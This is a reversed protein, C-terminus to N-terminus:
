PSWWVPSCAYICPLSLPMQRRPVSVGPRWDLARPRSSSGPRLSEAHAPIQPESVEVVVALVSTSIPCTTWWPGFSLLLSSLQRVAMVNSPLRSHCIPLGVRPLVTQGVIHGELNVIEVTVAPVFHDIAHVELQDDRVTGCPLGPVLSRSRLRRASFGVLLTCCREACGPRSDRRRRGARSPGHRSM